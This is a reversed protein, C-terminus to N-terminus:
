EIFFDRLWDDPRPVEFREVDVLLDEDPRLVAPDFFDAEVLLLLDEEFPREEPLEDLRELVPLLDAGPLLLEDRADELPRADDLPRAVVADDLFDDM